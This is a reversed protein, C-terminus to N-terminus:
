INIQKILDYVLSYWHSQFGYKCTYIETYIHKAKNWM